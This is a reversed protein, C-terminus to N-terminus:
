AEKWLQSIIGILRLKLETPPKRKMELYSSIEAVMQVTKYFEDSPDGNLGNFSTPIVQGDNGIISQAIQLRIGMRAMYSRYLPTNHVLSFNNLYGSMTQESVGFEEALGKGGGNNNAIRLLCKKSEQIASEEGYKDM